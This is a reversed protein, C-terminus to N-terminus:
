IHRSRFCFTLDLGKVVDIKTGQSKPVMFVKNGAYLDIKFGITENVLPKQGDDIWTVEAPQGATYMTDAVPKTPYLSCAVPQLLFVALVLLYGSKVQVM